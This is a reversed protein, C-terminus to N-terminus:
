RKSGEYDPSCGADCRAGSGYRDYGLSFFVKAEKNERRKLASSKFLCKPDNAGRRLVLVLSNGVGASM